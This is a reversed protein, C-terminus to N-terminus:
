PKLHEYILIIRYNGETQMYRALIIYLLHNAMGYKLEPSYLLVVSFVFVTVSSVTDHLSPFSMDSNPFLFSPTEYM